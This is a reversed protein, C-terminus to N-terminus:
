LRWQPHKSSSSVIRSPTRANTSKALRHTPTSSRIPSEEAKRIFQLPALPSGPSGSSHVSRPSTGSPTHLLVAPLPGKPEPTRPPGGNVVFPNSSQEGDKNGGLTSSSIWKMEKTGLSPAEPIQEVLHAFHDRLFKSLECWGGGVRVMVTQSRLIRCFCLKADEDDGIWYKGSKDEWSSSAVAQIPVAVEMKNVINGVAVDLKNKPNAVYPKRVPPKPIVPRPTQSFSLKSKLSQSASRQKSYNSSADSPSPSVARLAKPTKFPSLPPKSSLKTPTEPEDNSTSTTRQRSSFTSRIVSSNPSVLPGSVSRKKSLKPERDKRSSFAVSIARSKKQSPTKPMPKKLVASSPNSAASSASSASLSSTRSSSRGHGSATSPRSKNTIRDTAMEQLESWTQELRERESAVRSDQPLSGILADLSSLLGNTFTVRESLQEEPPKKPDSIHSSQLDNVPAVPYGDVHELLDSLAADSDSIKTSLWALEQCRDLPAKAAQIESNLSEFSTKANTDNYDRPLGDTSECIEAYVAQFHAVQPASPLLTAHSSHPSPNARDELSMSRLRNRLSDIAELLGDEGSDASGEPAAEPQAPISFVDDILPSPAPSHLEQDPQIILEQEMEALRREEQEQALKEEARKLMEQQEQERRAIAEAEAAKLRLAEEELKRAAEQQELERLRQEEQIREIEQMELKIREGEQRQKEAEREAEERRLRDQEKRENEEAERRLREEEERRKAAAQEEKLRRGEDELQQALAKLREEEQQILLLRAEEEEQKRIREQEEAEQRAKAAEEQLRAEEEKRIREEEERQLREAELRREEALRQREEEELRRQAEEEEQKRRADELEQRAREEEAQRQREEEEAAARLRAEEEQKLRELELREQEEAAKREEEIRLREEEQLKRLHQIRDKRRALVDSILVSAAQMSSAVQEVQEELRKEQQMCPSIITEQLQPSQSGPKSLLQRLNDRYTPLSQTTIVKSEASIAEIEKLSSELQQVVDWLKSLEQLSTSLRISLNNADTRVNHDLSQVDLPVVFPAPSAVADTGKSRLFATFSAHSSRLPGNFYSEAKGIFPVRTALTDCFQTVEQSIASYQRGLDEVNGISINPESSDSDSLTFTKPIISEFSPVMGEIRSELNLEDRRVESMADAQEKVKYFLRAMGKMNELYQGIADAGHNLSAAVPQGISGKLRKLPDHIESPLNTALSNLKSSVGEPTEPWPATDRPLPSRAPLDQGIPVWKARDMRDALEIKFADLQKWIDGISNWIKRADRLHSAQSSVSERVRQANKKAREFDELAKSIEESFHADLQAGSLARMAMRCSKADNDGAKEADEMESINIPLLALYAGHKLPDLCDISSLDIPSGDGNEAVIGELLKRSCSDLKSTHRRLQSSLSGMQQTLQNQKHYKETASSADKVLKKTKAVEQSLLAIISETSAAQDPFSSHSPKPFLRPNAMTALNTMKQTLAQSRSVFVADQQPDPHNQLALSIEAMLATAASEERRLEGYIEDSKKWQAVVEMGFRATSEVPKTTNELNEQEVLIADPVEKKEIMSDLAKGAPAILNRKWAAIRTTLRGAERTLDDALKSNASKSASSMASNRRGPTAVVPSPLSSESKQPSSVNVSSSSSNVHSFMAKRYADPSWRASQTIFQSLEKLIGEREEWAALRKEEWTLRLGTLELFESRSRLLHILKDLSLLTTLTLEILDTDAPSLNRQTAAKAFKKLRKMDNGDFREAEQEIEDHQKMWEELEARTPLGPIPTPTTLVLYELHSFLDVPPMQELFKIKNEIWERRPVFAQLELIEGEKLADEEGVPQADKGDSPNTLASDGESAIQSLPPLTEASTSTTPEDPAPSIVNM